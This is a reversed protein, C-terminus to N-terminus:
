ASCLSLVDVCHGYRRNMYNVWGLAEEESGFIYSEKYVCGYQSEVLAILKVKQSEIKSHEM